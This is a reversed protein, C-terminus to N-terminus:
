LFGYRLWESLSFSSNVSGVNQLRNQCRARKSFTAHFVPARSSGQMDIMKHLKNGDKSFFRLCINDNLKVYDESSWKPKAQHTSCAPLCDPVPLMVGSPQRRLVRRVSSPFTLRKSWSRWQSISTCLRSSVRTELDISGWTKTM